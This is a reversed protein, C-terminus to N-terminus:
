SLYIDCRPLQQHPSAGNFLQSGDDHAFFPEVFALLYVGVGTEVIFIGRNDCPSATM